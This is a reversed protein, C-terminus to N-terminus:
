RAAVVDGERWRSDLEVLRSSVAELIGHSIEPATELLAQMANANVVYLSVPGDAVATAMRPCRGLLSLEGLAEGPGVDGLHQGDRFVRVNGTRVVFCERGRTGERCLVHGDPVTVLDVISALRALQNPSCDRFLSVQQLDQMKPDLSHRNM